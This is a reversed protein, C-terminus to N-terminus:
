CYIVWKKLNTKILLFSKTKFVNSSGLNHTKENKSKLIM